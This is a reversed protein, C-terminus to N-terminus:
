GEMDAILITADDENRRFRGFIAECASAPKLSKFEDLRVRSSIGDSALALRTGPRLECSCVRFTRVNHGLIGASMVLPVVTNTCLLAVNGVACAEMHRGHILCVTLAAGRTRHLDEHLMRMCELMPTDLPTAELLAIAARSAEAAIPGHGLGDAVAFLRRDGDHRVLVADGNVCEGIKPASRHAIDANV